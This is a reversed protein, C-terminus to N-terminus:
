TCGLKSLTLKFFLRTKLNLVALFGAEEAAPQVLSIPGASAVKSPAPAVPAAANAAEREGKVLSERKALFHHPMLADPESVSAHPM